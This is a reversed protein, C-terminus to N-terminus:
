AKKILLVGNPDVLKGDCILICKNKIENTDHDEWKVVKMQLNSNVAYDSLKVFVAVVDGSSASDYNPLIDDEVTLVEKGGFRYAEGDTIGYNVRGIPQGNSDVMGNIYGDFTGQAMIFSGTRYAKKMAGFVKKCWAAWSEFEEASLTIKNKAPVHTDNLIGMPEGSGTGKFIAIEMAQVMAEAALKVFEQQFIDLTTVNALLTQAVKCELGYYNFVVSTNAQLKQKDSESTGTNATIWTATPKLSLVPIQVGGQVNLHRVRAYIEGYVRTERVIEHLISTPIAASADTTTTVGADRLEMPIAVGRCVFNMFATRYEVTDTPDSAQAPQQQYQGMARFERLGNVPAAPAAPAASRGEQPEQNGNGDEDGLDELQRKAESLEELITDLTEGLARCEDATQANKILNRLEAARKEKAAILKKLFERM